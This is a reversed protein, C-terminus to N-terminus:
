GRVQAEHARRLVELAADKQELQNRLVAMDDNARSVAERLHAM